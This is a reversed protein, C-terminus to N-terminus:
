LTMNLTAGEDGLTVPFKRSEGKFQVTIDYLGKFGRLNVRGNKDSVTKLSTSWERTLLDHWLQGAPKLEWNRRYYAGLPKWHAGEWFGWSLFGEVAPHSFAITMFDRTYAAQLAEDVMDIDHETVNIILGLEAYRDLISFVKEPPTLTTGFHSQMGIGHIPAGGKKLFRLTGEFHDQHKVDRGAGSLISYDNLFLKAQPDQEHALKFWRIMEDHGLIDMLDHNTYPENIVDWHVVKGRMAATTEIIHRDIAQRLAEKDDKLEKLMGPLWRWSPWVLCHGRIEIKREQLWSTSQFMRQRAGENMWNPWKLDNEFVVRSFTNEVVARYADGDVGAQTLMKASVASGWGFAHRKLEIQVPVDPLPAGGGDSLRLELPAKRLKEIREAAASRWPADPADGAYGNRIAPLQECRLAIGYSYLQLAAVEVSQPQVGMFFGFSAQGQGYDELVTFPYYFEKWVPPLSVDHYFSKTYEGGNKQFVFKIVGEGSESQNRITRAFFRVWLVDGKKVPQTIQWLAQVSWPEGTVAKVDFQFAEAFPQGDVAVVRSAALEPKSYNGLTGALDSPSILVGGEPVTVGSLTLAGALLALVSIKLNM